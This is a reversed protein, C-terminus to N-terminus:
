REAFYPTRFKCMQIRIFNPICFCCVRFRSSAISSRSVVRILDYDEDTIFDKLVGSEIQERTFTKGTRKQVGEIVALVELPTFHFKSFGQSCRIKYLCARLTIVNM